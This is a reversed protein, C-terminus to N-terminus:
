RPRPPRLGSMTMRNPQPGSNGFDSRRGGSWTILVTDHRVDQDGREDIEGDNERGAELKARDAHKQKLRASARKDRSQTLRRKEQICDNQRRAPRGGGRPEHRMLTLQNRDAQRREGQLQNRLDHKAHRHAALANALDRPV